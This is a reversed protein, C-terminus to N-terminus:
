SLDDDLGKQTLASNVHMEFTDAEMDLLSPVNKGSMVTFNYLGLRCKVVARGELM